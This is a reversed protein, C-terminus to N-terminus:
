AKKVCHREWLHKLEEYGMWRWERNPPTDTLCWSIRLEVHKSKADWMPHPDRAELESKFAIGTRRELAKPIADRIVTETQGMIDQIVKERMEKVLALQLDPQLKDFEIPYSYNM